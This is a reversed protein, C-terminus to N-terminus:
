LSICIYICLYIYVYIYMYICVYVCVCMGLNDISLLSEFIRGLSNVLGIKDKIKLVNFDWSFIDEKDDGDINVLMNRNEKQHIDMKRKM